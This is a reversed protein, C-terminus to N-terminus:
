RVNCKVTTDESTVQPWYVGAAYPKAVVSARLKTRNLCHSYNYNNSVQSYTRKARHSIKNTQKSFPRTSGQRLTVDVAHPRKSTSVCTQQAGWQLDIEANVYVNIFTGYCAGAEWRAEVGGPKPADGIKWSGDQEVTM